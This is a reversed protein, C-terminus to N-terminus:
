CDQLSLGPYLRGTALEERPRLLMSWSVRYAPPLFLGCSGLQLRQNLTICGVEGEQEPERSRIRAQLLTRLSCGTGTKSSKLKHHGLSYIAHPSYPLRPDSVPSKGQSGPAKPFCLLYAAQTQMDATLLSNAMIRHLLCPSSM